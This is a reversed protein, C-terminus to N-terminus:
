EKPVPLQVTFTSGIGPRSEVSINGGLSDVLGKVIPLGLGTGTIYRTSENKVRYFREFIKDLHKADIGFGNDKVQIHVTDNDFVASVEINGGEQTYNIANTILNGVISELALPDATFSPLPDEPLELTLQQKKSKARTDLFEVISKLLESLQVSTPQQCVAGTEIRSLDLLDGILSILGQTKEKARVLLRQDKSEETVMDQLVVALQEHITSLPSRLEHSVKALFETKLRDLVKMATINVFSVVAGLCEGKDGIVPQGRALLYKEESVAFEYTPIDEYDVYKGRSIDLLLNRLEEDAIVDALRKSDIKEEELELQRYLAPNALVVQGSANTVLLGNPLSDIITRIRSKETGLDALTRARERALKETERTLRIKERAREVVIRLQDPEFPKPIFDYAGRKMAEIATEVTAFGTIVIVLITDDMTRIRGLVEMGDMGPMKMDLLTIGIQNRALIELAEEGNAAQQVRCGMRTLIRESGERISQEDDVVLVHTPDTDNV